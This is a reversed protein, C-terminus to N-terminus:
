SIITWTAVNAIVNTLIYVANTATDIWITGLQAFDAAAPVRTSIIPQPPTAFDPQSLGYAVQPRQNVSM